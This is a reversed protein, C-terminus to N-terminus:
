AVGLKELLRSLSLDDPLVWMQVGVLPEELTHFRARMSLVVGKEPGTREVAEQVVKDAEDELLLPLSPLLRLQVLNGIASLCSSVLINSTEQLASLQLLGLPEEEPTRSLAAALKRADPKLFVVLLQGTLEGEMGFLVATISTRPGGLSGSIDSLPLMAANAFDVDVKKGGVLVGLAQAAQACGQHAVDRLAELQRSNLTQRM